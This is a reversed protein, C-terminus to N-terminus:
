VDDGRPMDVRAYVHCGAAQAGYAYWAIKEYTWVHSFLNILNDRETQSLTYFHGGLTGSRFRYVASTGTPQSGAAYAYFAVGEYAWVRPSFLILKDREGPSM